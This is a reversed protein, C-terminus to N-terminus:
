SNWGGVNAQGTVTGWVQQSQPMRRMKTFYLDVLNRDMLRIRKLRDTYEARMAQTLFQWNAGSGREMENGKQSEKWIYLM